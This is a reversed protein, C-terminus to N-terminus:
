ASRDVIELALPIPASLRELSGRVSKLMEEFRQKHRRVDWAFGGVVLLVLASALAFVGPTPTLLWFVAAALLFFILAFVAGKRSRLYMLPRWHAADLRQEARTRIERGVPIVNDTYAWMLPNKCNRTSTAVVYYEFGEKNSILRRYVTIKECFTYIRRELLAQVVANFAVTSHTLVDVFEAFSSGTHDDCDFTHWECDILGFIIVAQEHPKLPKKREM